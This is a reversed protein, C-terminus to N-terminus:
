ITHFTANKLNVQLQRLNILKQDLRRINTKSVNLGSFNLKSLESKDSIDCNEYYYKSRVIWSLRQVQTDNIKAAVILKLQTKM